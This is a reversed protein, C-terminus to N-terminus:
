GPQGFMDEDADFVEEKIELKVDDGEVRAETENDNESKVLECKSDEVDVGEKSDDKDVMSNGIDKEMEIKLEANMHIKEDLIDKNYNSDEYEEKGEDDEEGEVSEQM